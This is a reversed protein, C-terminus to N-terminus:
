IDKELLLRVCKLEMGWLSSSIADEPISFNHEARFRLRLRTMSEELHRLDVTPYDVTLVIQGDDKMVRVFETLAQFRATEDVHELVSICYVTDFMRDRYPLRTMDCLNLHIRHLLSRDFTAVAQEGFDARIDLLTAEESVIRPDIDCAYVEGALTTLYWKFPHSIGSAVDVVVSGPAAFKAAWAYEYPRSWWTEPLDFLM